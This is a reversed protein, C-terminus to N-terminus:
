KTPKKRDGISTRWRAKRRAGIIALEYNGAAAQDLIQRIPEGARVVIEPTLGLNRLLTRKAKSRLASRKRTDPNEAIGLLTTAAHCPGAILGGLRTPKDAPDTGDSCILIRM